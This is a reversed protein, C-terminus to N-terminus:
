WKGYRTEFYKDWFFWRDVKSVGASVLARFMAIKRGTNKNFNDKKSCETSGIYVIADDGEGVTIFCHTTPRDYRFEVFYTTGNVNIDFM